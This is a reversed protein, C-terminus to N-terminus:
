LYLDVVTLIEWVYYESFLIYLINCLCKITFENLKLFLIVVEEIMLCSEIQIFPQVVNLYYFFHYLYFYIYLILAVNVSIPSSYFRTDHSNM